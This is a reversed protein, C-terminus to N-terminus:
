RVGSPRKNEVVPWGDAGVRAIAKGGKEERQKDRSHCSGCLSAHNKPDLFLALNGKHPTRHDVTDAPVILGEAKCRECLPERRLQAQRAGHKGRWQPLDYLKRWVIAEPSRQQPKGM